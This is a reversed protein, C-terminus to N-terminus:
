IKTECEVSVKSNAKWRGFSGTATQWGGRSNSDGPCKAPSKEVTGFFLGSTSGLSTGFVWQQKSPVYYLFVPDDQTPPASTNRTTSSSTPNTTTARRKYFPHGGHMGAFSYSGIQKIAKEKKLVNADTTSLKLNPSSCTCGHAKLLEDQAAPLHSDASTNALNEVRKEEGEVWSVEHDVRQAYADYAEFYAPLCSLPVGSEPNVKYIPVGATSFSVAVVSTVPAPVFGPLDALAPLSISPLEGIKKSGGYIQLHFMYGACDEVPVTIDITQKLYPPNLKIPGVMRAAGKRTRPLLNSFSTTATSSRSPSSSRSSSGGAVSAYSPSAPVRAPLTSAVGVSISPGAQSPLCDRPGSVMHSDPRRGTFSQMTTCQLAAGPRASRRGWTWAKCNAKTSCHRSCDPWSRVGPIVEPRGAGTYATSELQCRKKMHNNSLGRTSKSVSSLRPGGTALVEAGTIQLYDLCNPFTVASAKLSVVAKALDLVKRVPDWFYSTHVMDSTLPKPISAKATSRFKAESTKELDKGSVKDLEELEVLIRYNVCPEISVTKTLVVQKKAQDTENVLHRGGLSMETGEPWVRVWYRDVCQPREIAQDWSVLIKTPDARNPQVIIPAKSKKFHADRGFCSASTLPLLFLLLSFCVEM